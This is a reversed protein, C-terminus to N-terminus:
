HERTLKDRISIIEKADVISIEYTQAEKVGRKPIFVVPTDLEAEADRALIIPMGGERVLEKIDQFVSEKLLDTLPIHVPPKEFELNLAM